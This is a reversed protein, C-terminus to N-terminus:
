LRCPPGAERPSGKATALWATYPDAEQLQERVNCRPRAAAGHPTPSRRLRTRSQAHADRRTHAATTTPSFDVTDAGGGSEDLTFLGLVSDADFKYVDSGAVGALTRTEISQLILSAGNVVLGTSSNVIITDAGATGVIRVSDTGALGNITMPANMAFTGFATAAGGNTSITVSVSGTPAAGSYTLVFADSGATGIPAPTITINAVVLSGGRGSDSNGTSAQVSFHGTVLSNQAPIFRLGANAQAATIFAGNSIATTGNNQFLTGGTISTIRFHTVEAGDAANRSIVLGSM